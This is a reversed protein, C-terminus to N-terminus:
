ARNIFAPSRRGISYLRSDRKPKQSEIPETGFRIGLAKATQKTDFYRTALQQYTYRLTTINMNDAGIGAKRAIGKLRRNIEHQSMDWILGDCQYDGIWHANLQGRYPLPYTRYGRRKAEEVIVLYSEIAVISQPDYLRGWTWSEIAEPGSLLAVALWAYDKEPAIGLLHKIEDETLIRKATPMRKPSQAEVSIMQKVLSLYTRCTNTSLGDKRLKHMWAEVDQTTADCITKGTAREFSKRALTVSKLTSSKYQVITM